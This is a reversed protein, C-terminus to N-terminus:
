FVRVTKRVKLRIVVTDDEKWEELLQDARAKAEYRRTISAMWFHDPDDEVILDGQFLYGIPETDPTGGLQIAGKSRVRANHVKRTERDTMIVLDDGDRSYWLPVVHPYGEDDITALRAILKQDLFAILEQSFTM